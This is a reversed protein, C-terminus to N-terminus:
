GTAFTLNINQDIVTGNVAKSSSSLEYSNGNQMIDLIVSKLHLDIEDCDVVVSIANDSKRTLTAYATFQETYGIVSLKGSYDGAITTAIDTPIDDDDGCSVMCVSTVVMVLLMSLYKMTKM